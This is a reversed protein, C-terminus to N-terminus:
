EPAALRIAGRTTCPHAPEGRQTCILQGAEVLTAAVRRVEPMWPRWDEELRRAAESPCFTKGRREEALALLVQRIRQAAEASTVAHATRAEGGPLSRQM